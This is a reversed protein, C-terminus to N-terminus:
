NAVLDMLPSITNCEDLGAVFDVAEKVFTSRSTRHIVAVMEEVAAAFKHSMIEILAPDLPM